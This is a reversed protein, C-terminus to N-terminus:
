LAATVETILQDAAEEPTLRDFLVEQSLRANAPVLVPGADANQHPFPRPDLDSVRQFYESVAQETPSLESQIEELVDKNPTVGRDFKMIRASEPSNVLFDILQAAEEPHPSSSAIAWFIGPKTYIGTTEADAEGPFLMVEIEHGVVDELVGLNPVPSIQMAGTGVGIASREIGVGAAEVAAAASPTGGSDRLTELLTYYEAVTEATFGIDSSDESWLDEGHQRLFVIFMQEDFPLQTGAVGPLAQSIAAATEVYDDWSWTTDDPMEVGAKEFVTPDAFVGFGSLGAPMGYLGGDVTTHFLASQDFGDSPLSDSLPNLDLIQGNEIYSYMYPDTIAMVDPLDNAAASTSLRSFYDDFGAFEPEVTINPHEAEFLDIVEQTIAGRVDSGWWNMRLTVQEGGEAAPEEEGTNEAVNDGQGCGTLALSGAALVTAVSMLRRRSGTLKTRM